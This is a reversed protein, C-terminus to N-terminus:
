HRLLAEGKGTLLAPCPGLHHLPPLDPVATNAAQGTGAEHRAALDRRRSCWQLRGGGFIKFAQAPNFMTLFFISYM